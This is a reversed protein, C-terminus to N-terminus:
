KKITKWKFGDSQSIYCVYRYPINAIKIDGRFNDTDGTFQEVNSTFGEDNLDDQIYFQVYEDIDSVGWENLWTQPVFIIFRNANNVVLEVEITDNWSLSGNEINRTIVEGNISKPTPGGVNATAGILFPRDAPPVADLSWIISNNFYVKKISNGDILVNGIEGFNIM